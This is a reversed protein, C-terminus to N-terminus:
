LSVHHLKIGLGLLVLVPNFNRAFSTNEPCIQGTKGQKERM